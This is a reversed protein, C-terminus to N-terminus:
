LPAARKVLNAIEHCYIRICGLTCNILSTMIESLGSQLPLQKSYKEDYAQAVSMFFFPIMFGDEYM